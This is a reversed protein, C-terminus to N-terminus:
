TIDKCQGAPERRAVTTSFAPYSSKMAQQWQPRPPAFKSISSLCRVAPLRPVAKPLAWTLMRLSLMKLFLLHLLFLFSFSFNTFPLNLFALLM